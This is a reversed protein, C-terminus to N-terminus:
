LNNNFMCVDFFNLKHLDKHKLSYKLTKHLSNFTKLFKHEDENEPLIVIIYAVFRYYLLINLPNLPFTIFDNKIKTHFEDALTPALLSGMAVGNMQKYFCDRFNFTIHNTCLKCLKLIHSKNM